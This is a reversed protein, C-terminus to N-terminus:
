CTEKLQLHRPNFLPGEAHLAVTRFSHGPGEAMLVGKIGFCVVLLSKKGSGEREDM